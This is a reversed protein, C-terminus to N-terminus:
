LKFSVSRTSRTRKSTSLTESSSEILNAKRKSTLRTPKTITKWYRTIVAPQAFDTQKVWENFNSPRNKWKVLFENTGNVQRHDLIKQIEVQESEVPLEMDQSVLKLQNAVRRFETGDNNKLLYSGGKTRRLVRFPGEYRPEDSSERADNKTMVIAGPAFPDKLIRNLKSFQEVSKQFNTVRAPM